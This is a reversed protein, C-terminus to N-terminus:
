PVAFVKVNADGGTDNRVSVVWQIGVLRLEAWEHQGLRRSTVAAAAFDDALGVAAFVAATDSQLAIARVNKPLDFPVATTKNNRANATPVTITGLYIM